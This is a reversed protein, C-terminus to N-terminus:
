AAPEWVAASAASSVFLEGRHRCVWWSVQMLLPEGGAGPISLVGAVVAPVFGLFETLEGLNNGTWQLADFPDAPYRFTQVAM